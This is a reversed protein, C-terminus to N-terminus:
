KAEGIKMARIRERVANLLRETLQTESLKKGIYHVGADDFSWMRWIIDETKIQPCTEDLMRAGVLLSHIFERYTIKM